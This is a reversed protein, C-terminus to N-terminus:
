NITSPYVPAARASYEHLSPRVQKKNEITQRQHSIQHKIRESPIFGTITDRTPKLTADQKYPTYLARKIKVAPIIEAHPQTQSFGIDNEHQQHKYVRSDSNVAKINEILTKSALNQLKHEQEHKPKYTKVAFAETTFQPATQQINHTTPEKPKYTKVAFADTTFQPATQKIDHITPEKPKYTKVAFAETTFQPATQQINHTTPEKPKYTKVAFANTTFQPAIQQINHTTPEKPKYTKVAFADTTFQPATQKINHTTPERTRHVTGSTIDVQLRSDTTENITTHHKYEEFRSDTRKGASASPQNVHKKIVMGMSKDFNSSNERRKYTATPKVSVQLFSKLTSPDPGKIMRHTHDAFAHQSTNTIGNPVNYVPIRTLPGSTGRINEKAIGESVDVSALTQVKGLPLGVGSTSSLIGGGTGIVGSNGTYDITRMRDNGRVQESKVISAGYGDGIMREREQIDRSTQQTDSVNDRRTTFIGNHEARIQNRMGQNGNWGQMGEGIHVSQSNNTKISLAM